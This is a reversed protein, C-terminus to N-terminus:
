ALDAPKADWRMAYVDLGEILPATPDPRTNPKSEEPVADFFALVVCGKESHASSRTYHKPLCAYSDRKYTHGNIDISGDLVYMEEEAAISEAEPRSWGAPYRVVATLEGTQSDQSLIKADVDDRDGGPLGQTWPLHQAFLFEILPRAMAIELIHVLM